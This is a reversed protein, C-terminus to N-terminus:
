VYRGKLPGPIHQSLLEKRKTEREEKMESCNLVTIVKKKENGMEISGADSKEVYRQINDLIENNKKLSEELKSLMPHM